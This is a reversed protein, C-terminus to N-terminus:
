AAQKAKHSHVVLQNDFCSTDNLCHIEFLITALNYIANIANTAEDDSLNELVPFKRVDDPTIRKGAERQPELESKHNTDM